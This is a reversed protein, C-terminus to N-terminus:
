IVSKWVGGASVVLAIGLERAFQLAVDRGDFKFFSLIILLGTGSAFLAVVGVVVTWPPMHSRHGVSQM